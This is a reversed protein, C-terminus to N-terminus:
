RKSTRRSSKRKRSTTQRQPKQRKRKFRKYTSSTWDSLSHLIAGAELGAFLAIWEFRYTWLSRKIQQSLEQWNWPIDRFLQVILLGLGGLAIVWIALYLLRLITGILLGHSFISRHRIVKQYPIWIWRLWGWRKFPRSYLDLDPSFLLGSFLFGGSVILTLDSRQTLGLTLGTVLPLSWLTIRDHLQGSSM